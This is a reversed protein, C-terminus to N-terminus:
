GTAPERSGVEVPDHGGERGHARQVAVDVLLRVVVVLEPALQVVVAATSGHPAESPRALLSSRSRGCPCPRSGQGVLARTSARPDPTSCPAPSSPTGLAPAASAGGSQASM